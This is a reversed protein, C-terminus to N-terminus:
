LWKQKLFYWSTLGIALLSILVIYLFALPDKEFPLSINMGYMSAVLTPVML